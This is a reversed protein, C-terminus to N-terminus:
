EQTNNILQSAIRIITNKSTQKDCDGDISINGDTVNIRIQYFNGKSQTYTVPEDMSSADYHQYIGWDNDKKAIVENYCLALAQKLSIAKVIWYKRNDGSYFRSEQTYKDKSPNWYLKYTNLHNM